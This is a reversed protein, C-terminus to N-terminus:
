IYNNGNEKYGRAAKKLVLLIYELRQEKYVHAFNFNQKICQQICGVQNERQMQLPLCDFMNM